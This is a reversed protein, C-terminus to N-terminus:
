EGFIGQVPLLVATGDSSSTVHRLRALPFNVSVDCRRMEALGMHFWGASQLEGRELHAGESESIGFAGKTKGACGGEAAASSDADFCKTEM